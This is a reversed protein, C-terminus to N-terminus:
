ETGNHPDGPGGVVTFTPAPAEVEETEIPQPVQEPMQEPVQVPFVVTEEPKATDPSDPGTWLAAVGQPNHIAEILRVLTDKVKGPMLHDCWHQTHALQMEKSASAIYHQNSAFVLHHVLASIYGGFQGLDAFKCAEDFHTLLEVAIISSMRSLVANMRVGAPVRDRLEVAPYNNTLFGLLNFMSMPVYNPDAPDVDPFTDNFAKRSYVYNAAREQQEQVEKEKVSQEEM